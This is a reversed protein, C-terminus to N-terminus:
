IDKKNWLKIVFYLVIPTLTYILFESYDYVSVDFNLNQKQYIYEFPYFDTDYKFLPRGTLLLIFHIFIWALYIAKWRNPISAFIKKM